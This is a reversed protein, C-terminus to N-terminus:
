DWRKIPDSPVKVCAGDLFPGKVEVIIDNKEYYYFIGELFYRLIAKSSQCYTPVFYTSLQILKPAWFRSNARTKLM